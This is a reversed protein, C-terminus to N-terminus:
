EFFDEYTLSKERVAERVKEICKYKQVTASHESGFDFKQALEKMNLKDYYFSRLLDLCKKGAQEVFQLVRKSQVSPFFDGPISLAAEFTNLSINKRDEKFKRIWLHKAIGLIYREPAVSIRFQPDSSREFYIVLADQFVDKADQFSGNMQSVFGAVAPFASQYLEGFLADRAAICSSISEIPFAALEHRMGILAILPSSIM